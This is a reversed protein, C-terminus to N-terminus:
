GPGREAGPGSRRSPTTRRYGVTDWVEGKITRRRDDGPTRRYGAREAVRQSALNGARAWLRLESLDLAALAWDSLLRLARTAVGRGRASAAVWYSAEGVTDHCRLAINGLRQGTATDCIVYGISDPQRELAVIALIVEAATLTPSESTWRQIEPDRVEAAYWDADGLRWDRLVVTGDTLAERRMGGSDGSGGAAAPTM